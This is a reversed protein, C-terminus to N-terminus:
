LASFAYSKFGWHAFRVIKLAKNDANGSLKLKQVSM